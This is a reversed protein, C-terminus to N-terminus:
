DGTGVMFVRVGLPEISEKLVGNSMPVRRDNSLFRAEGKAGAVTIKAEPVSKRTPNVVIVTAQGDLLRWGVELPGDASVQLQSPDVAGQLTRGAKRILANQRVMEKVIEPPSADFRFADRRVSAPFYFIGRAGHLIAYWIQARMEEPTPCRAGAVNGSEIESAEIFVFQPKNTLKKIARMPEAILAIDGRRSEHGRNLWGGAPYLDSAIWDATAVLRPYYSAYNTSYSDRQTTFWTIDPGAFNLFIKRNPDISRWESYTKEFAPTWTPARGAADPEDWHSWALLDKRGIDDRPNAAPRRIIRFGGARAARDWAVADHNMPVELLTDIGRQKWKEFSDM